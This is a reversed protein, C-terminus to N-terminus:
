EIELKHDILYSAIFFFAVSLLVDEIMTIYLSMDSTVAPMTTDVVGMSIAFGFDLASDPFIIGNIYSIVINIAFFLVVAIIGRHRRIYNTHTLNMVMYLLTIMEIVGIFTSLLTLWGELPMQALGNSLLEFINGFGIEGTRWALLMAALMIVLYSLIFWLSSNLIKVLLLKKSSVPLTLTLYGAKSFMSSQYTRIVMVFTMIVTVFVMVTFLISILAMLVTNSQNFLLAALLMIAYTFLYNRYSCKIEYKWLNWFM